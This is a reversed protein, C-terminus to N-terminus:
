QSTQNQTGSPLGNKSVAMLKWFEINSKCTTQAQLKIRKGSVRCCLGLTKTLREVEERRKKFYGLIELGRWEVAKIPTSYAFASNQV